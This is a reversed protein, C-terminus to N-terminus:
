PISSVPAPKPAAQKFARTERALPHVDYWVEGNYEIVVLNQLLWKRDAPNIEAPLSGTRWVTHLHPLVPRGQLVRELDGALRAVANKIDQADIPISGREVVASSVIRLLDRVCGGSARIADDHASPEAFVAKLDLRRALFDRLTQFGVPDDENKGRPRVRVMPIQIAVANAYAARLQAQDAHLSVPFTLVMHVPLSELKPLQEIFLLEYNTRGRVERCLMKELNDIIIVIDDIEENKVLGNRIEQILDGMQEIVRATYQWATERFREQLDANKLLTALAPIGKGLESALDPAVKKGWELFDKALLRATALPPVKLIPDSWLAFFLAAVLEPLQIDSPDLREQIDFEVVHFSRGEKEKQLESALSHLETSKGSGSHGTVLHKEYTGPPAWRIRTEVTAIRNGGRAQTLDVFLRSDPGQLPVNGDCITPVYRAERVPIQPIREVLPTPPKM